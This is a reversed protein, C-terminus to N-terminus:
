AHYSGSRHPTPYPSFTAHPHQGMPSPHPVAVSMSRAPIPYAAPYSPGSFSAWRQQEHQPQPQPQPQQPLQHQQTIAQITADRVGLEFRKPCGDETHRRLTDRRAFRNGCLSCKHNRAKLHVQIVTLKLLRLSIFLSVSDYHRDLDTKRQFKKACQMSGNMATCPHPYKRDPNHTEMHSKWNYSRKFLKGCVNCEHTAEEPTTRQRKKHRLANALVPQVAFRTVSSASMEQAYSKSDAQSWESPQVSHRYSDDHQSALVSGDHSYQLPAPTTMSRQLVHENAPSPYWEGGSEDPRMGHMHAHESGESPAYSCISGRHSPMVSSPPSQCYELPPAEPSTTRPANQNISYSGFQSYPASLPYMDQQSVQSHPYDADIMSTQSWASAPSSSIPTLTAPHLPPITYLGLRQPEASSDHLPSPRHPLYSFKNHEYPSMPSCLTHSINM